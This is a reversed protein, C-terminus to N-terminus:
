NDNKSYSNSLPMGRKFMKCKILNLFIRDYFCPIYGECFGKIRNRRTMKIYEFAAYKLCKKTFFAVFVSLFNIVEERFFIKALIVTPKAKICIINNNLFQM